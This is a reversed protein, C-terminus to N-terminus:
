HLIHSPKVYSQRSMVVNDPNRANPLINCPYLASVFRHCVQYGLSLYGLMIEVLVLAAMRLLFSTHEEVSATGRQLVLVNEEVIPLIRSPPCASMVEPCLLAPERGHAM